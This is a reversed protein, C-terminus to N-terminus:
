SKSMITVASNKDIIITVEESSYLGKRAAEMIMSLKQELVKTHLAKMYDM